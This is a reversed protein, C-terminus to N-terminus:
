FCCIILYNLLYLNLVLHFDKLFNNFKFNILFLFYNLSEFNLDYHSPKFYKEFSILKKKFLLHYHLSKLYSIIRKDCEFQAQLRMNDILQYKIGSQHLQSVPFLKPDLQFKLKLHFYSCHFTIIYSHICKFYWIMM